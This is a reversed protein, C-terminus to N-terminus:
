HTRPSAGQDQHLALPGALRPRGRSPLGTTFVVPAYTGPLMHTGDPGSACVHATYTKGEALGGGQWPSAAAPRPYSEVLTSDDCTTTSEYIWVKYEAPVPIGAVPAPPSWTLRVSTHGGDAKLDRPAAYTYQSVPVSPPVPVPYKGTTALAKFETVTAAVAAPDQKGAEHGRFASWDVPSQGNLTGKDTYQWITPTIGGYPLWGAGADADSYAV